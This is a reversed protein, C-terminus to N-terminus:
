HCTRHKSNPSWLDRGYPQLLTWVRECWTTSPDASKLKDVSM